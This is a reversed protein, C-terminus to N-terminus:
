TATRGTQYIEDLVCHADDSTFPLESCVLRILVDGLAMRQNYDRLDLVFFFKHTGVVHVVAEPITAPTM